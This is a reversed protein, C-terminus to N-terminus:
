IGTQFLNPRYLDFLFLLLLVAVHIDRPTLKKLNGCGTGARGAQRCHTHQRALRKCLHPLVLQTTGAFGAIVTSITRHTAAGNKVAYTVASFIGFLFDEVDFAVGIMRHAATRQARFASRQHIKNVAGIAQQKGFHALRTGIFPFANGPVICEGADGFVDFGVAIGVQNHFVFVAYRYVAQGSQAHQGSRSRGVFGTNERLFPHARQANNGGIRLSANAVAGGYGRQGRSEAAARHGISKNIDLIGIKHHHHATIGGFGM